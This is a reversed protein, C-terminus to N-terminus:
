FWFHSIPYSMSGPNPNTHDAMCVPCLVPFRREDIKTSVHGRVCDRCIDHGCSEIRVADDEPFDDLCIGCHYRRQATRLLQEMQDQLETDEANFTAQLRRAFELDVDLRRSTSARWPRRREPPLTVPFGWTPTSRVPYLHTSKYALGRCCAM